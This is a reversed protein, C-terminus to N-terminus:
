VRSARWLLQEWERVAARDEFLAHACANVRDRVEDIGMRLHSGTAAPASLSALSLALALRAYAVPSSAVCAASLSSSSQGRDSHHDRHLQQAHDYERVCADMQAYFAATLRGRLLRGIGGEACETCAEEDEHEKEAEEAQEQQQHQQQQQQNTTRNNSMTTTIRNM